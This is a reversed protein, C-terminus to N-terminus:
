KGEVDSTALRSHPLSHDYVRSFSSQESLGSTPGWILPPLVGRRKSWSLEVRGPITPRITEERSRKGAGGSLGIRGTVTPNGGWGSVSPM